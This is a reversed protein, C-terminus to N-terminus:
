HVSCIIGYIMIAHIYLPRMRSGPPKGVQALFDKQCRVAHHFRKVLLAHFQKLVLRCGKVQHTGRGASSDSAGHSGGAAQADVNAEAATL